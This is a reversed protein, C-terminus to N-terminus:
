NAGQNVEVKGNEIIALIETRKYFVKRGFKYFPIKEKKSRLVALSNISIGTLQSTEETTLYDKDLNLKGLEM